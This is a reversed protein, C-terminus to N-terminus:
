SALPGQDNMAAMEAATMDGSLYREALYRLGPPPGVGTEPPPPIRPPMGPFTARGDAGITLGDPLTSGDDIWPRYGPKWRPPGDDFVDVRCCEDEQMAKHHRLMLFFTADWREVPTSMLLTDEMIHRPFDCM